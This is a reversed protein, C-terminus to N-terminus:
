RSADLHALTGFLGPPQLRQSRPEPHSHVMKRRRSSEAGLPSSAMPKHTAGSLWDAGDQGLPFQDVTSPTRKVLLAIWQHGPMEPLGTRQVGLGCPRGPELFWER